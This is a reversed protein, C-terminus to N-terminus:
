ESINEIYYKYAKLIKGVYNKTESNLVTRVNEWISPDLGNKKTKNYANQVCGVGCNYAGLSFKLRENDNTVESLNNRVFDINQKLASAGGKINKEPVYVESFNLGFSSLYRKSLQMLGHCDADSVATPNFGSENYAIAALLRWDVNPISAYKKFYVDYESINGNGIVMGKVENKNASEVGATLDGYSYSLTYYNNSSGMMNRRRNSTNKNTMISELTEAAICTKVMPMKTRNIRVGRFTTSMDGPAINHEVHIIQYAGRFMPINNLQFYMLPQIQACGMMDVQCSYSYNSYIRFLDQGEFGLKYVDASKTALAFQNAVAAETTQPNDMNVSINKFISQKQSGYEVGFAPIVYNSENYLDTIDSPGDFNATDNLDSPETINFGDNSYQSNPLDLHRSPQHPYLCVYSPGKLSDDNVSDNYSFPTFMSKIVEDGNKDTLSGNFFPMSMLMMSAKECVLAMFSYVSMTSELIGNQKDAYGGVMAQVVENLKTLNICLEDSLDNFYTDVFHFRKFESDDNDIDYKDIELPLSHLHKDYLNKLTLYMSMKTEETIKFKRGVTLNQNVNEGTTKLGYLDLLNDKFSNFANIITSEDCSLGMYSGDTSTEREKVKYPFVFYDTKNLWEMLTKYHEFNENFILIYATYERSGCMYTILGINSYRSSFAHQTDNNTEFIKDIMDSTPNGHQKFYKDFKTNIDDTDEVDVDGWKKSDIEKLTYGNKINEFNKRESLYLDIFYVALNDKDAKTIGNTNISKLLDEIQSSDADNNKHSVTIKDTKFKGQMVARFVTDLGIISTGNCVKLRKIIDKKIKKPNGSNNENDFHYLMMGIFLQTVYPLEVICNGSTINESLKTIDHPFLMLFNEFSIGNVMFLSIGDYLMGGLRHSSKTNDDKLYYTNVTKGNKKNFNEMNIFSYIFNDGFISDKPILYLMNSESCLNNYLKGNKDFNFNFDIDPIDKIFENYCLIESSFSNDTTTDINEVNTSLTEFVGDNIKNIYYFPYSNNIDNPITVYANNKKAIDEWFSDIGCKGNNNQRHLASPFTYNGLILKNDYRNILKAKNNSNSYCVKDNVKYPNEENALYKLFNDSNFNDNKLQTLFEEPVEQNIKYFNVAEAKGFSDSGFLSNQSIIFHQICRIGFFSMLWGIYDNGDNKDFVYYYPNEVTIFDTLCTPITIKSDFNDVSNQLIALEDELERIMEVVSDVGMLLEDILVTEEMEESCVHTPYCYTNDEINKLAPFPPVTLQTTDIYPVDVTNIASVGIKELTRSNTGTTNKIFLEYIEMFVQLHAMIMKFINKVTPKFGLLNVIDTDIRNTINDYTTKNEVKTNNIQSNITEFLKKGSIVYYTSNHKIRHSSLARDLENKISTIFSDKNTMSYSYRDNEKNFTIAYSNDIIYNNESKKIGDIEINISLEQPLHCIKVFETPLETDKPFLYVNNGCNYVNDTKLLLNFGASCNEKLQTLKAVKEQGAQYTKIDDQNVLDKSNYEAHQIRERLGLFTPMLTGDDFTFHHSDWLNEEGGYKCYPAILLYLMPIDTYVGYMRGIFKVTVDFNGTQNNFSSRFDNVLLSYEVKKGYFGKVQLKFEPYPFSFLSAFFNETQTTENRETTSYIEENPAMLANARVDTFQITIEPYFYSNYTIHINTIGLSENLGKSNKNLIDQYILTGPIDTMYGDTGGFFTTTTDEFGKSTSIQFGGVNINYVRNPINVLLDVSISYDEYPHTYNFESNEIFDNPEVYKIRGFTKIGNNDAM